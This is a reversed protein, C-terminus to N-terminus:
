NDATGISISSSISGPIQIDLQRYKREVKLQVDRLLDAVQTM